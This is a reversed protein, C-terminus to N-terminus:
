LEYKGSKNFQNFKITLLSSCGSPAGAEKIVKFHHSGIDKNAINM